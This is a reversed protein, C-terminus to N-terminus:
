IHIKQINNERDTVQILDLLSNQVDKQNGDMQSLFQASASEMTFSGLEEGQSQRVVKRIYGTYYRM